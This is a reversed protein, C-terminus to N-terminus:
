EAPRVLQAWALVSSLSSSIEQHDRPAFLEACGEADYGSRANEWAAGRRGRGAAFRASRVFNAFPSPSCRERIPEAFRRYHSIAV